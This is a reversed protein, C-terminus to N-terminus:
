TNKFLKEDMRNKGDCMCRKEDFLSLIDYLKKADIQGPASLQGATGFTISSGFQQGCLRSILGVRGMAMTVVPCDLQASACMTAHLLRLVDDGDKPMVAVKAIDAGLAAMANLRGTIVAEEPTKLFDHNSLVTVIRAAKAAAIVPAIDGAELEIDIMDAMRSDIVTELFQFYSQIEAERCGGEAKTRFTVLLPMNEFVSRLKRLVACVATKDFVDDFADARWEAISVGEKAKVAKAAEYIETKTKGMMPACIKPMGEGIVIDRVKVAM